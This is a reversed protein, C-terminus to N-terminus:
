AVETWIESADPVDTWIGSVAPVDTWTDPTDPEPEWKLRASATFIASISTAASTFQVRNVAAALAASCNITASSQAVLFASATFSLQGTATSEYDPEWYSQDVYYNGDSSVNVVRLGSATVAAVASISAQGIFTVSASASASIQAAVLAAVSQVRNAVASVSAAAAISGSVLKADGEAYGEEWYEPEVYYPLM